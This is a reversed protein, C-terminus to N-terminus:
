KVADMNEVFQLIKKEADSLVLGRREYVRTAVEFLPKAAIDKLIKLGRGLCFSHFTNILFASAGFVNACVGRCYRYQVNYQHRKQRPRGNSAVFSAFGTDIYSRSVYDWMKVKSYNNKLNSNNTDAGLNCWEGLVSNGLFGDHAKNSYGFIVSNSM